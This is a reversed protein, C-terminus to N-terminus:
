ARELLRNSAVAKQSHQRHRVLMVTGLTVTGANGIMLGLVVSILGGHAVLLVMAIVFMANFVNLGVYARMRGTGALSAEIVYCLTVVFANLALLRAVSVGHAAYGKGLAALVLPAALCVVIAAPILLAYIVKLASLAGRGASTEDKNTHVLYAQSVASPIVTLLAGVSAAMGYWALERSGLTAGVILPVCAVPAVSVIATVYSMGAYRYYSRLRSTVDPWWERVRVPRRGIAPAAKWMWLWAAVLGAATGGTYAILLGSVGLSVLLPLMAVRVISGFLDTVILGRWAGQSVLAPTTVSGLATLVVLATFLLGANAPALHLTQLTSRGLASEIGVVIGGGILVISVTMLLILMRPHRERPLFRIFSVSWGLGALMGLLSAGSNFAVYDGVAGVSYGHAAIVSFAYGFVALIATNVLMVTSGALVGDRSFRELAAAAAATLRAYIRIAPM